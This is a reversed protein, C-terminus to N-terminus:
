ADATSRSAPLSNAWRNYGRISYLVNKGDYRYQEGARWIGRERKRQMAKVTLGTLEELKHPTVWDVSPSEIM